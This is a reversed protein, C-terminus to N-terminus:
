NKINLFQETFHLLETRLTADDLEAVLPHTVAGGIASAIMAARVRATADIEGGLLVRFLRQMFRQFPEHDALLRVVVPDHQLASVMRRRGVALDIVQTLLTERAVPGREGAEAVDLAEELKGLEVEVTAVVIAEKTRFQHYIAAKTVGLADAIMQLSTGSVGQEAFLDLAAMVTRMQVASYRPSGLQQPTVQGSSSMSRRYSLAKGRVLWDAIKLM